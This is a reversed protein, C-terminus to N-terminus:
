MGKKEWGKKRRRRTKKSELIFIKIRSIEDQRIDKRVKSEMTM